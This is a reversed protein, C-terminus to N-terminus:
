KPEAKVPAPAAPPEVTAAQASGARQAVLQWWAPVAMVATIFALIITAWALRRTSKAVDEQAATADRMEQVAARQEEILKESAMAHRLQIVPEAYKLYFEQHGPQDQRCCEEIIEQLPADKWRKMVGDMNVM